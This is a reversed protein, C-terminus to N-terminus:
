ELWDELSKEALEPVGHALGLRKGTIARPGTPQDPLPHQGFEESIIEEVSDYPIAIEHELTTEMAPSRLAIRDWRANIFAPNRALDFTPVRFRGPALHEDRMSLPLAYMFIWRSYCLTALMYPAPMRGDRRRWLSIRPVALPGPLFAIHSFAMCALIPPPPVFPEVLWRRTLDFHKLEQDPLVAFAMKVLCRYVELPVHPQSKLTLVLAKAQEDEALIAGREEEQINFNNRSANHKVRAKGDPSKYGPVGNKGRIAEATRMPRTFGDFHHEFTQSFQQNCRDCEDLSILRRNGLCEPIAHAEQKFTTEPPSKQCYRCVRPSRVGLRQKKPGALDLDVTQEYNMDLFLHTRAAAFDDKLLILGGRCRLRALAAAEVQARTPFM